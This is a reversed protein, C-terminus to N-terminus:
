NARRLVRAAAARLCVFSTRVLSRRAYSRRVAIEAAGTSCPRIHCERRRETLETSMCVAQACPLECAAIFRPWRAIEAGCRESARWRGGLWRRRRRCGAVFWAAFRVVRDRVCRAASRAPSSSTHTHKIKAGKCSRRVIHILAALSHVVGPDRQAGRRLRIRNASYAERRAREGARPSPLRAGGALPRPRAVARRAATEATWDRGAREGSLVSSGSSPPVPADSVTEPAPQGREAGPLRRGPAPVRQAASSSAATSIANFCLTKCTAARQLQPQNHHPPRKLRRRRPPLELKSAATIGNQTRDRSRTHM